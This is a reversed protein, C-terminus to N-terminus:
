QGAPKMTDRDVMVWKGDHWLWLRSKPDLRVWQGRRWEWKDTTGEGVSTAAAPTQVYSEKVTAFQCGTALLLCIVLVVAAVAMVGLVTTWPKEDRV